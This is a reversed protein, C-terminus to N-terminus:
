MIRSRGAIRLAAERIPSRQEIASPLRAMM